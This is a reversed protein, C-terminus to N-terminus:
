SSMIMCFDVIFTKFMIIVILLFFTQFFEKFGEGLHQEEEGKKAGLHLEEKVKERLSLYYKQM